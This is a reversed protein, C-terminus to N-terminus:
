PKGEVSFVTKGTLLDFAAVEMEYRWKPSLHRAVSVLALFLDFVTRTRILRATSMLNDSPDDPQLLKTIILRVTTGSLNLRRLRKRMETQWRRVDPESRVGIGLFSVTWQCVRDYCMRADFPTEVATQVQKAFRLVAPVSAQTPRMRARCTGARTFITLMSSFTLDAEGYRAQIGRYFSWSKQRYKIVYEPQEYRFWAYFRRSAVMGGHFLLPPSYGHLLDGLGRFADVNSMNCPKSVYAAEITKDRENCLLYTGEVSEFRHELMANFISTALKPCSPQTRRQPCVLRELFSGLGSAMRRCLSRFASVRFRYGTRTTGGPMLYLMDRSTVPIYSTVTDEQSLWAVMGDFDGPQFYAVKAPLYLVNADNGM